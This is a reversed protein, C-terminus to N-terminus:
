GTPLHPFNARVMSAFEARDLAAANCIDRAQKIRRALALLSGYKAEQRRIEALPLAAINYDALAEDRELKDFHDQRRQRLRLRNLGCAKITARGLPTRGVAVARRFSLHQALDARTPDLLLPHESALNDHHSHARGTAPNQLPFYNRKYSRNCSNCAFFLNNWEYALWYYGPKALQKDAKRQKYGNKPRFHEVDGPNNDLFYRECYCCKEHQEAILLAKVAADNYITAAVALRKNGAVRCAPPDADYRTELALRAAPGGLSALLVSPAAGKKVQIM